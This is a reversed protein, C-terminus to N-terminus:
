LRPLQSFLWPSIVHIETLDGKAVHVSVQQFNSPQNVSPNLLYPTRFKMTNHIAHAHGVGVELELLRPILSNLTGM